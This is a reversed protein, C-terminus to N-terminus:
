TLIKKKMGIGATMRLYNYSVGPCHIRGALSVNRQSEIGTVKMETECM